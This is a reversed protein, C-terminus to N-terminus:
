ERPVLRYLQPRKSMFKNVLKKIHFFQVNHRYRHFGSFNSYLYITKQVYKSNFLEMEFVLQDGVDRLVLFPKIFYQQPSVKKSTNFFSRHSQELCIKGKKLFEPVFIKRGLLHNNARYWEDLNKILSVM